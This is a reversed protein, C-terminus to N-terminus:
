RLDRGWHDRLMRLAFGIDVAVMAKHRKRHEIMIGAVRPGGDEPRRLEWLPSGSIGQPKPFNMKRGDPHVIDKENFALVIHSKESLDLPPYAEPAVSSSLYSYAASRVNKEPRTVKSKSAPFGLFAYKKNARPTSFPALRGADMPEKGIETYPPLGEGELFVIGTDIVDQKRTGERPIRSLLIDGAIARKTKTGAYYYLEHGESIKDLVHAATILLHQDGVLVLFGTGISCPASEKDVFIPVVHRGVDEVFGSGLLAITEPPLSGQTKTSTL